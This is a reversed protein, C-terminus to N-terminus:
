DQRHQTSWRCTRRRTGATRFPSPTTADMTEAVSAPGTKTVMLDAACLSSDVGATVPTRYDVVVDCALPGLQINYFYYYYNTLTGNTIM